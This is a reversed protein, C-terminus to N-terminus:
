SIRIFETFYHLIINNKKLIFFYDSLNLLFWYFKFFIWSFDIFDIFDIFDSFNLLFWYFDIFNWLLWYFDLFIWCFDVFIWCFILLFEVFFWYFDVFIELFILLIVNFKFNNYIEIEKLLSILKPSPLSTIENNEPLTSKRNLQLIKNAKLKKILLFMSYNSSKWYFPNEWGIQEFDDITPDNLIKDFVFFGM